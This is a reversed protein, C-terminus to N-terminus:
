QPLAVWADFQRSGPLTWAQLMRGQYWAELRGSFPADGEAELRCHFTALVPMDSKCFSSALRHGDVLFGTGYDMEGGDKGTIRLRVRDGSGPTLVWLLGCQQKWGELGKPPVGPLPRARTCASALPMLCLMSVLFWDRGANM